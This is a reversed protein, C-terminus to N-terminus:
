SGIPNFNNMQFFNVGGRLMQTFGQDVMPDPQVYIKNSKETGDKVNRDMIPMLSTVNHGAEVLTDAIMGLFNSHSHGYKSNYVLIKYANALSFTSILLL